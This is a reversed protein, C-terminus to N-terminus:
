SFSSDIAVPEVLCVRRETKGGMQSFHNNRMWIKRDAAAKGLDTVMWAPSQNQQRGEGSYLCQRLFSSLRPEQTFFHKSFFSFFLINPFIIISLSLSANPIGVEVLTEAM